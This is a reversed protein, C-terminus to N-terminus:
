NGDTETDHDLHRVFADSGPFVMSEHGDDSWRVVYPPGGDDGRVEIVEADREPEGVRHGRIVLQDGVHATIM